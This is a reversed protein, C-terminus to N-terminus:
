IWRDIEVWDGDETVVVLCPDVVASLIQGAIVLTTLAAVGLVQATILAIKGAARGVVPAYRRAVTAGRSLAVPAEQQAWRALAIAKQGTVSLPRQAVPDATPIEHFVVIAKPQVGAALVAELRQRARSPLATGPQYLELWWAGVRQPVIPAQSHGVIRIPFDLARSVQEITALHRSGPAPSPRSTIPHSTTRQRVTLGRHM